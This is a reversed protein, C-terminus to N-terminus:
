SIVCIGLLGADNGSSENGNIEKILIGYPRIASRVIQTEEATSAGQHVPILWYNSRQCIVRQTPNIRNQLIVKYSKGTTKSIFTKAYDEIEAVHIDPTSYIGRGYMARGGAKYHSRIIGNAGDISTGHYSVPWEGPVSHSRWGNPGLWADGDPYRGKVKLAMRYWGKPRQYLEDGRKCEALDSLATFDHDYASDFFTAADLFFDAACAHQKGILNHLHFHDLSLINAAPLFRTGDYPTVNQGFLSSIVEAKLNSDMYM